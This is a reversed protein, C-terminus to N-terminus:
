VRVWWLVSNHFEYEDSLRSFFSKCQGLSFCRSSSAKIKRLRFNREDKHITKNMGDLTTAVSVRAKRSPVLENAVLPASLLTSSCSSNVLVVSLMSAISFIRMSIFSMLHTTCLDNNNVKSPFPHM